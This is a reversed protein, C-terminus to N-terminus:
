GIACCSKLGTMPKNIHHMTATWLQFSTALQERLAKPLDSMAEFSEARREFIWGLIQKLRFAPQGHTELWESLENSTLNLIHQM